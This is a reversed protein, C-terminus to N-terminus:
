ITRADEIYVNLNEAAYQKLWDIFESMQLQNLNRACSHNSGFESLLLKELTELPYRNGLEKFAQQCTPLIYSYFYSLQAATTGTQVVEFTAIVRMGKNEAMFQNVRDMPLRLKGDKGITGSESIKDAKM